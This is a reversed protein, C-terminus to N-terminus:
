HGNKSRVMEWIIISAASAANLSETKDTMPIIVTGTAVAKVQESLGQGENGIIFSDKPSIPFSGLVLSDDHLATAFVNGHERALSVAGCIDDTIMINASFVAGMSARLTKPNYIDACDASLVISATGLAAATRIVTGLNGTDRVSELFLVGGNELCVTAAPRKKCVCLVGQPSSETTLKEFVGDSVCFKADQDIKDLFAGYELLARETFYVQEPAGCFRVYEEALHIGEIFFLGTNEREKRQRLRIVAKIRENNRSTIVTM